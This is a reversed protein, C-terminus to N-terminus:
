TIKTGKAKPAFEGELDKRCPDSLMALVNPATEEMDCMVNKKKMIKM